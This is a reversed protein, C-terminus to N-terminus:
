LAESHEQHAAWNAAYVRALGADRLILLNEANSQEAAKTFNFIGTIVTMGDIVIVKNHAIAHSADIWVNIGAHSLFTASTYREGRQSRDLVVRVKVGRQHADRLAAAIPASTFSYAQVLVESKAQGLASVVAETCGGRPSFFVEVKPNQLTVEAAAARQPLLLGCGVLLVLISPLFLKSRM